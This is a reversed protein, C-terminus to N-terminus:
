GEVHTNLLVYRVAAFLLQTSTSEAQSLKTELADCLSLLETVRTVIRKQVALPPLPIKFVRIDKLNVHPHAAGIAAKTAQDRGIPSNLIRVFYDTDIEEHPRMSVMGQSLCVQTNPPVVVAWGYSLERSYM